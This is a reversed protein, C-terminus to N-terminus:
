RRAAIRAGARARPWRATRPDRAAASEGIAPMTTATSVKVAPRMPERQLAQWFAVTLARELMGQAHREAADSPPTGLGASM